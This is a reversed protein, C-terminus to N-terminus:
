VKVIRIVVLRLFNDRFQIRVFDLDNGTMAMGWESLSLTRGKSIKGISHIGKGEQCLKLFASM